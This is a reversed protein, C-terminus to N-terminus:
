SQPFEGMAKLKERLTKRTIGLIKAAHSKNGDVSMLVKKIHEMEVEALTRNLGEGQHIKFRMHEPLDTIDITSTDKMVILRQLLNELERV